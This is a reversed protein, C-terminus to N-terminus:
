FSMVKYLVTSVLPDVREFNATGYEVEASANYLALTLGYEEEWCDSGSLEIGFELYQSAARCNGESMALEGARLCQAAIANREAQNKIVDM